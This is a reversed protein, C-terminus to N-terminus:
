TDNEYKLFEKKTELNRILLVFPHFYNLTDIIEFKQSPNKIETYTNQALCHLCGVFLVFAMKFKIM